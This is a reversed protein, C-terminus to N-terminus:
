GYKSTTTELQEPDSALRQIGIEYSEGKDARYTKVADEISLQGDSISKAFNDLLVKQKAKMDDGEGEDKGEGEDDTGGGERGKDQEEQKEEKTETSRVHM